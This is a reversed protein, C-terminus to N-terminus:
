HRTDKHGPRMWEGYGTLLLFLGNLKELYLSHISHSLLNICLEVLKHYKYLMKGLHLVTVKSLFTHTTVLGGPVCHVPLYPGVDSGKLYWSQDPLM